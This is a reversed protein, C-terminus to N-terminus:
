FIIFDVRRIRYNRMEELDTGTYRIAGSYAKSGIVSPVESETYTTSPYGLNRAHRWRMKYM